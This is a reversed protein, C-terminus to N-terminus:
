SFASRKKFVQTQSKASVDPPGCFGTVGNGSFRVTERAETLGTSMYVFGCEYVYM